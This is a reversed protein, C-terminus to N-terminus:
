IDEVNLYWLKTFILSKNIFLVFNDSDFYMLFQLLLMENSLLRSTSPCASSSCKVVVIAGPHAWNWKTFFVMCMVPWFWHLFRPKQLITYYYYWVYWCSLCKEKLHSTGHCNMDGSIRWVNHCYNNLHHAYNLGIYVYPLHSRMEKVSCDWNMAYLISNEWVTIM